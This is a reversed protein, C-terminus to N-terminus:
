TEIFKNMFENFEKEMGTKDVEFRDLKKALQEHELDNPIKQVYVLKFYSLDKHIWYYASKIIRERLSRLEDLFDPM